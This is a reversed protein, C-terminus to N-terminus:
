KSYNECCDKVATAIGGAAKQGFNVCTTVAIKLPQMGGFGDPRIFFRGLHQDQERIAIQNYMKKIDGCAVQEAARFNLIVSGFHNLPNKGKGMCGNLSRGNKDPQGLDFVLRVPTSESEKYIVNMAVYHVPGSWGELEKETLFRFVGRQFSDKLSQNLQEIDAPRKLLTKELNQSRRRAIEENPLLNLVEKTYPYSAVYKKEDPLYEIKDQIEQDQLHELYTMMETKMKCEKCNDTKAKCSSCKPPVNVGISETSIADLFQIDKTGALNNIIVPPKFAPSIFTEENQDKYSSIFTGINQEKYSSILPQLDLVKVREVACVNAKVGTNKSTMKVHEKSHGMLTWGTGFRSRLLTLQGINTIAKPHLSALDTGILIDLNGPERQLKEDTVSNCMQINGVRKRIDMVKLGPYSSSLKDLGIAEIEHDEGSIDRISVKYWCGQMQNKSGDTCVLTYSVLVGKLGLKRATSSLIFTSQSCNDFMIRVMTNSNSIPVMQIPLLSEGMKVGNILTSSSSISTTSSNVDKWNARSKCDDTSSCLYRNFSSGCPCGLDEESPCKTMWVGCVFHVM